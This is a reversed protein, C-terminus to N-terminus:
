CSPRTKLRAALMARLVPLRLRPRGKSRAEHSNAQAALQSTAEPQLKITFVSSRSAHVLLLSHVARKPSALAQTLVWHALSSVGSHVSIQGGLAIDWSLTINIPNM